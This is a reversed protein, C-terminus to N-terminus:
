QLTVWQNNKDSTYIGQVMMLSDLSDRSALYAVDDDPTQTLQHVFAQLLRGHGNGWYDKVIPGTEEDVAVITKQNVILQTNTLQVVDKEFEFTIMPAPDSSYNNSAYILVPIDQDIRAVAMASDEVEIVSDLFATMIKGKIAVPCKILWTIADFTHIAQNILVGGGEKQLSGKWGTGEYYSHDRHWTIEAKIGKLQGFAQQQILQKLKIFSPNFRNQYCTAYHCNTLRMADLIEKGETVTLAMPKECLVHKDAEFAAITMQKHLYHPTAIIVADVSSHALLAEYTSYVSGGYTAAIRQGKRIDQDCVAVLEAEPIKKLGEAHACAINGCGVLGFKIM